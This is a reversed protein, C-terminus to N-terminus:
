RSLTLKPRQRAAAFYNCRNRGQSKAASMAQDANKLLERASDADDPYISIGISASVVGVQNGLPFPAALQALINRAVREASGSDDLEALVVTFEDGGLRAVTDTERVCESIRRAAEILLLDGMDHGLTDNIAKFEDLDIFLLAVPHNARHAKKIEQDLRDHFMRRNPLGTLSDFNAQIWIQEASRKRDTIDRVFCFLKGGDQTLNAASVEVDIIAGDRRKWRTEFRERRNEGGGDPISGGADPAELDVISLALLEDRSYGTLDCLAGNVEGLRGGTELQMYGEMASEVAMAYRAQQGSLESTVRQLARLPLIRLAVYTMGGLLLGLLAVLVTAYVDERLSHMIAIHGVVRGSEYVPQSRTMVPPLPRDGFSVLDRGAADTLTALQNPLGVTRAMLLEELRPLQYMWLEPNRSALATIAGAKVYAETEVLDANNEYTMAAYGLPLALAVLFAVVLAVRNVLAVLPDDGPLMMNKHFGTGM